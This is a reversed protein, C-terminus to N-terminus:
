AVWAGIAEEVEPLLEEWQLVPAGIEAAVAACITKLSVSVMYVASKGGRLNDPYSTAPDEHAGGGFDLRVQTGAGKPTTLRVPSEHDSWYLDFLKALWLPPDALLIAAKLADRHEVIGQKLESSPPGDGRVKLQGGELALVYGEHELAALTAAARM